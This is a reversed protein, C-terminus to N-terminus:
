QQREYWYLLALPALKAKAEELLSRLLQDLKDQIQHAGTYDTYLSGQSLEWKSEHILTAGRLAGPLRPYFSPPNSM